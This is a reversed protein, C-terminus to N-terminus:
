RNTYPVNRNLINYAKILEEIGQDISIRAEFGAQRLKENSVIYNRKDPDKGSGSENIEFEPVYEKIRHALEKKSMNASDLGVNYAQGAMKEYNEISHLFARSVDESWDSKKRRWGM